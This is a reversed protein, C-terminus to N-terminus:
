RNLFFGWDAAQHLHADTFGPHHERLQRFQRGDDAPSYACTWGEEILASSRAKAAEIQEPTYLDGLAEHLPIPGLGAHEPHGAHRSNFYYISFVANLADMARTETVFGARRARATVQEQEIGALAADLEAEYREASFAEITRRMQALTEARDQKGAVLRLGQFHAAAHLSSEREEETLVRPTPIRRPPPATPVGPAPPSHRRRTRRRGLLWGAGSGLGVGAAIWSLTDTFMWLFAGVLLGILLGRQRPELSRWADETFIRRRTV